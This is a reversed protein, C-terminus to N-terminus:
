NGKFRGKRVIKESSDTCGAMFRYNNLNINIPLLLSGPQLKM